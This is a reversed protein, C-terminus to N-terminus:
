GPGGGLVWALVIVWVLVVLVVLLPVGYTWVWPPPEPRHPTRPSVPTGPPLVHTWTAGCCRCTGVATQATVVWRVEVHECVM